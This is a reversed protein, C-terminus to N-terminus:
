LSPLLTHPRWLALVPHMEFQGSALADPQILRLEAPHTCVAAAARRVGGDRGLHLEATGLSVGEPLLHHENLGAGTM